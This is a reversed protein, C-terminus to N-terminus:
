DRYYGNQIREIEALEAAYIRKEFDKKSEIYVECVNGCDLCITDGDMEAFDDSGCCKTYTERQLDVNVVIEENNFPANPDNAAGLPLNSNDM